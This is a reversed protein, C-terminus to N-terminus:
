QRREEWERISNCRGDKLNLLKYKNIERGNSHTSNYQPFTQWKRDRKSIVSTCQTNKLRVSPFGFPKKTVKRFWFCNSTTMCTTKLRQHVVVLSDLPSPRISILELLNPIYEKINIIYLYLFPKELKVCM